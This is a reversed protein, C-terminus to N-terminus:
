LPKRLFLFVTENDNNNQVEKALIPLDYKEVVYAPLIALVDREDLYRKLSEGNSSTYEIPLGKALDKVTNKCQKYAHPHALVKAGKKGVLHYSIKLSHREMIQLGYKQINKKTELVVGSLRNEFPLVAIDFDGKMFARIVEYISNRFYIKKDQFVQKCLYYSFTGRPGLTIVKM